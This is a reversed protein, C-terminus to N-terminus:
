PPPLYVLCKALYRPIYVEIKIVLYNLFGAGSRLVGPKLGIHWATRDPVAPGPTSGENKQVSKGVQGSWSIRTM